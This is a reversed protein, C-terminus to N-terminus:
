AAVLAKRATNVVAAFAVPDTAGLDSLMKRDIEVGAVKLGHIFDRYPMGHERVAANIRTVWLQRFQRKRQKRGEYRYQLSAEVRSTAQRITNKSRGRFGEAINLLKKRRKRAKTGRKVRM